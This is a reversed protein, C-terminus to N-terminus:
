EEAAREFALWEAYVKGVYNPLIRKGFRASAEKAVESFIEHEDAKNPKAVEVVRSLFQAPRDKDAFPGEGFLAQIDEIIESAELEGSKLLKYAWAKTRPDIFSEDHERGTARRLLQVQGIYNQYRHFQNSGGNLEPRLDPTASFSGLKCRVREVIWVSSPNFGVLEDKDWDM